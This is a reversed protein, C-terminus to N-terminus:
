ASSVPHVTSAVFAAAVVAVFDSVFGTGAFDIAIWLPGAFVVPGFSVPRASFAPDPCSLDVFAPGAFDFVPFAPRFAAESVPALEPRFSVRRLSFITPNVFSRRFVAERLGFSVSHGSADSPNTFLPM